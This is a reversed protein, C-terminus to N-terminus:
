PMCRVTCSQLAPLLAPKCRTDVDGKVGVGEVGAVCSYAIRYPATGTACLVPPRRSVTM